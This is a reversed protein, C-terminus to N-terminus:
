SRLSGASTERNERPSKGAEGKKQREASEASRTRERRPRGSEEPSESSGVKKKQPGSRSGSLIGWCGGARAAANLFAFARGTRDARARPSDAASRRQVRRVLREDGTERQDKTELRKSEEIRRISDRARASRAAAIRTWAAPSNTGSRAGIPVLADRAGRLRATAGRNSRTAQAPLALRADRRFPPSASLTAMGRRRARCICCSRVSLNSLMLRFVFVGLALADAHAGTTASRPRARRECWRERRLLQHAVDRSRASSCPPRRGPTM